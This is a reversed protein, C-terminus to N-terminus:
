KHPSIHNHIFINVEWRKYESIFVPLDGDNPWYTLCTQANNIVALSEMEHLRIVLVANYRSMAAYLMTSGKQLM